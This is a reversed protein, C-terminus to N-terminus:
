LVVDLICHHRADGTHRVDADNASAAAASKSDPHTGRTACIVSGGAIRSQSAELKQFLSLVIGSEDICGQNLATRLIRELRLEGPSGFTKVPISIEVGVTRDM